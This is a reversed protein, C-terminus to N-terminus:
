TSIHFAGRRHWDFTFRETVEDLAALSRILVTPSLSLSAKRRVQFKM